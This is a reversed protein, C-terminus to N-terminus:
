RGSGTSAGITVTLCTSPTLGETCRLRYNSSCQTWIDAARARTPPLARLKSGAWGLKVMGDRAEGTPEWFTCTPFSEMGLPVAQSPLKWPEGGRRSEALRLRVMETDQVGGPSPRGATTSAGPNRQQDRRNVDQPRTTGAQPKSEKPNEGVAM